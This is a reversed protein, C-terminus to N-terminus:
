LHSTAESKGWPGDHGTAMSRKFAEFASYVTMAEPKVTHYYQEREVIRSDVPFTLDVVVDGRECWAHDIRKRLKQSFVTGHVVVWDQEKAVTIWRMAASYCLGGWEQQLLEEESDGSEPVCANLAARAMAELPEPDALRHDTGVVILASEPLGSNHLLEQSDAFPVVDDAKSHLIVTSPKV